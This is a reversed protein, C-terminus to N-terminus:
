QQTPVASRLKDLENNNIEIPYKKRLQEIWQKELWNQYDPVLDGRVDRPEQPQELLEKSYPFFYVWRGVKVPHKHGFGLYDVVPDEGEAMIKREAKVNRGFKSRLATVLSDVEVPNENLWQEAARGISDNMASVIVMKYKPAAWVYDSRHQDFYAQQGETDTNGRDWVNRNSVEFLLIGDRYENVLNRFEPNNQQLGERIEESVVEDMAEKAYKDFLMTASASSMTERPLRKVVDGVTLNRNKLVALKSGDKELQVFLASDVKQSKTNLKLHAKKLISPNIVINNDAMYRDLMARRPAMAREDRAMTANIRPMAESADIGEREGDKKVIHFGYSTKFPESISGIPLTFSEEEFEPVMQGRGFWQLEGGVRASGPDQSYRRAMDAFDAGAKLLQHLSDARQEIAKVEADDKGRTLLLIHSVKVQMDPQEELPEVIHFGYPADEFVASLQGVPTEWAVKEFAYPLQCGHIWGLTGGNREASRDSSFKKALDVFDAGGVILKRISDLRNRNALYEDATQGMPLMIHRVKRMTQMRALEENRLGQLVTTDAMYPASLDNVYKEFEARFAATTDLGVAEADAVKLKYNVFLDVYEDLSQPTQQQTNNKNYYYMFEESTVPKGNVRMLVDKQKQEKAAAAVFVVVTALAIPLFLKKM